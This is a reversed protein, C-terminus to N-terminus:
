REARPTLAAWAERAYDDWNRRTVDNVTHILENRATNNSLLELMAAAIAADDRPDVLVCGGKRAIEATAGFNSTIVPVGYALSEAVPLGYGEHLSPFVTVMASKYATALQVDDIGQRLVADNGRRRAQRLARELRHVQPASGGGIFQLRFRLGKAWLRESAALVAMQNKRPEVSGVCLVLPTTGAARAKRETVVHDAAAMGASAGAQTAAIDRNADPPAVPLSVTTIAPGVLGQSSLASVFGRFEVATAESICVLRHSHKVFTLYALFRETEEPPVTIASVAPIMDYAIATCLNGSSRALAALPVCAARHPVEPIVITCRFPIIIDHAESSLGDPAPKQSAASGWNIVRELEHPKLTRYARAHPLWAVLTMDRKDAVWRRMTQRVVRQIGTNHSHRACFDVDVIVSDTVVKVVGRPESLHHRQRNIGDLLARHALGDDAVSLERLLTLVGHPEPFAAGLVALALWALDESPADRLKIATAATFAGVGRALLQSAEANEIGLFPALTLLREIFFQQQSSKPV